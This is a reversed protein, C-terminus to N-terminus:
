RKRRKNGSHKTTWKWGLIKSGERNTVKGTIKRSYDKGKVTIKVVVNAEDFEATVRSSKTLGLESLAQNIIAEADVRTRAKRKETERKRVGEDKAARIAKATFKPHAVLDVRSIQKQPLSDRLHRYASQATRHDVGHKEKLARLTNQYRTALKSRTSEVQRSKSQHLKKKPM